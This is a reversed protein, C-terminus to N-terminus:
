FSRKAPLIRRIEEKSCATLGDLVVLGALVLALVLASVRMYKKVCRMM